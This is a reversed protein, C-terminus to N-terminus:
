PSSREPITVRSPAPDPRTMLATVLASSRSPNLARIETALRDLTEITDYPPLLTGGQRAIRGSKALHLDSVCLLRAEPWWLAGSPRAVLDVGTLTLVHGEMRPTQGLPKAEALISKM